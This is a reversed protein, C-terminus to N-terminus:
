IIKSLIISVIHVCEPGMRDLAKKPLLSGHYPVRSASSDVISAEHPCITKM